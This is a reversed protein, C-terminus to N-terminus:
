WLLCKETRGKTRNIKLLEKSKRSEATRHRVSSVMPSVMLCVMFYCSFLPGSLADLPNWDTHWMHRLTESAEAFFTQKWIITVRLGPLLLLSWISAWWNKSSDCLNIKKKAWSDKSNKTPGTREKSFGLLPNKIPDHTRSIVYKTKSNKLIRSLFYRFRRFFSLSNKAPM